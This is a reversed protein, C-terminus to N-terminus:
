HDDTHSSSHRMMPGTLPIHHAEILAIQQYAELSGAPLLEVEGGDKLVKEIIDNVVDQQNLPDISLPEQLEEKDHNCSIFRVLNEEVALLISRRHTAAQWAGDIGCHLTCAKHANNLKQLILEKRHHPWHNLAPQLITVYENESGQRPDVPLYDMIHAAHETEKKSVELLEKEGLVFVPLHFAELILGLGRDIQPVFGLHSWANHQILTLHTNNGEYLNIYQSELVLALYHPANSKAKIINKVDLDEGTRIMEIVPFDLYFLKSRYPTALLAISKRYNYYSIEKLLQQIRAIVPLAKRNSYQQLLRSEAKSIMRKLRSEISAKENVQPEFPLAMCVAPTQGTEHILEEPLSLVQIM